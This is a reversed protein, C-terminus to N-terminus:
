IVFDVANACIIDGGVPLEPLVGMTSTELGSRM